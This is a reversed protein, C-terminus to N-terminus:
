KKGPDLCVNAVTDQLRVIIPRLPMLVLAAEWVKQRDPATSSPTVSDIVSHGIIEIQCTSALEM